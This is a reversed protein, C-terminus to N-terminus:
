CPSGRIRAWKWSARMAARPGPYEQPLAATTHGGTRRHWRADEPGRRGCRRARHDPASLLRRLTPAASALV